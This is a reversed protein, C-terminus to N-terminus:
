LESNMVFLELLLTLSERNFLVRKTNVPVAQNSSLM